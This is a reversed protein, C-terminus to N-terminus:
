AVRRLRIDGIQARALSITRTSKARADPPKSTYIVDVCCYCPPCFYELIEDSSSHVLVKKKATKGWFVIHKLVGGGGRGETFLKKFAVYRYRWLLLSVLSGPRDLPGNM